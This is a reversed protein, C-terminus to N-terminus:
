WDREFEGTIKEFIYEKGDSQNKLVADKFTIKWRNRIRKVKEYQALLKSGNEKIEDSKEADSVESLEEENSNHLKPEEIPGKDQFGVLDPDYNDENNINNQEPKPEEKEIIKEDEKIEPKLQSIINEPM